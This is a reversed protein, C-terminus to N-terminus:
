CSEVRRQTYEYTTYEPHYYSETYEVLQEEQRYGFYNIQFVYSDYDIKLYRLIDQNPIELKLTTVFRSPKTKNQDMLDYLSRNAFDYSDYNPNDYKDIYTKQYAYPKTEIYLLRIIEILSKSNDFLIKLEGIPKVERISIVKRFNEKAMSELQVSLSTLEQDGLEVLGIDKVNDLVFTGRGHQSELVREEILHNIANRVTMRSIGYLKSMERESQIKDGPRLEGKRIKEKISEMLQQYIPLNNRM